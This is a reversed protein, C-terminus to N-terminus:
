PIYYRSVGNRSMIEYITGDEKMEQLKKNIENLFKDDGKKVPYATNYNIESKYQSPSLLKFNSKYKSSLINEAIISDTLVADVLKNELGIILSNNDFFSMYDKIIGQEKWKEALTRYVTGELVGVVSNKLDEKSNIGTDRRTVVVESANYIPITFNVLAEREGTIYFGEAIMDVDPNKILENIANSFPIYRVDVKGVGLRKALEMVIEADVGRFEGTKPDKYSYPATNASYVTLVGKEKIKQLRDAQQVSAINDKIMNASVPVGLSLIVILSVIFKFYSKM